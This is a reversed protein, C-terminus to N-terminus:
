KDKREQQLQLAYEFLSINLKEAEKKFVFFEKNANKVKDIDLDAEKLYGEILDPFMRHVRQIVEWQLFCVRKLELYTKNEQNLSETKKMKSEGKNNKFKRM